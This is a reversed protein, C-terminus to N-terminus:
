PHNSGSHWQNGPGTVKQSPGASHDRWLPALCAMGRGHEAEVAGAVAQQSCPCGLPGRSEGAADGCVEAPDTSACGRGLQDLQDMESTTAPTRTM